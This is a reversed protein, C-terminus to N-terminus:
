RVIFAIPHISGATIVADYVGDALGSVDIEAIHCFDGTAFGGLYKLYPDTEAGIQVPSTSISKVTGETDGAKVPMGSKLKAADNVSIYCFASKGEVMLGAKVTTEINGFISWVLAGILLLTISALLLWIGPKTVRIYENLQDPSNVREISKKRFLENNM